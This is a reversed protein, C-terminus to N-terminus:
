EGADAGEKELAERLLSARESDAPMNELLRQYAARNDETLFPGLHAAITRAPFRAGRRLNEQLFADVEERHGAEAHRELETIALRFLEEDHHQDLVDVLADLHRRQPPLRNLAEIAAARTRGSEMELFELATDSLQEDTIEGAQHREIMARMGEAVRNGAEFYEARPDAEDGVTCDPAQYCDRTDRMQGLVTAADEDAPVDATTEPPDREQERAPLTDEPAQPTKEQAHEEAPDQPRDEPPYVLLALVALVLVAAIAILARM